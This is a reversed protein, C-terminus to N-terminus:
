DVLLKAIWGDRYDIIRWELGHYSFQLGVRPEEAVYLMLTEAKSDEWDADFLSRTVPPPVHDGEITLNV